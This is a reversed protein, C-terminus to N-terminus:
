NKDIERLPVTGGGDVPTGTAGVPYNLQDRNVGVVFGDVVGERVNGTGVDQLTALYDGTTTMNDVFVTNRHYRIVSNQPGGPRCEILDQTSPAPAPPTDTAWNGGTLNCAELDPEVAADLNTYTVRSGFVFPSKHHGNHCNSAKNRRIVNGYGAAIVMAHDCNEFYNDEITWGAQADCYVAYLAGVSQHNLPHRVIDKFTCRRVANYRSTFRFGGSLAGGDGDIMNCREFLSDEIVLRAGTLGLGAGRMRIFKLNSMYVGCSDSAGGMSPAADLSLAASTTDQYYFGIDRFEHDRIVCQGDIFNVKDGSVIHGWRRGLLSSAGGIIECQWVKDFTCAVNPANRFQCNWFKVGTLRDADVLQKRAGEFAIGSFIVHSVDQLSMLLDIHTLSAGSPAGEGAPPCYYLRNVKRRYVTTGEIIAEMANVLALKSSGIHELKVGYSNERKFTIATDAGGNAPSIGDIQNWEIAWEYAWAGYALIDQDSINWSLPGSGTLIATAQEGWNVGGEASTIRMWGEALEEAGFWLKEPDQGANPYRSYPRLRDGAILSLRNEASGYGGGMSGAPIGLGAVDIWYVNDRVNQPMRHWEDDASTLKRWASDPVPAAGSVTVAAGEPYAAFVLPHEATGSDRGDLSLTDSLYYHGAHLYITAGTWDAGPDGAAGSRGTAARVADRARAITRFPAAETGPNSDDGNEAVHFILGSQPLSPVSGGDPASSANPDYALMQALETADGSADLNSSTLPVFDRAGPVADVLVSRDLNK